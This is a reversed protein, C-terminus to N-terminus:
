PKKKLAIKGWISLLNFDPFSKNFIMLSGFTKKEKKEKERERDKRQVSVSIFYIM